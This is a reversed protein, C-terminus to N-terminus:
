VKHIIEINERRIAAQNTKIAPRKNINRPDAKRRPDRAPVEPIETNKAKKKTIAPIRQATKATLSLLREVYRKKAAKKRISPKKRKREAKPIM